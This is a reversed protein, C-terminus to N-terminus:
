GYRQNNDAKVRHEAEWLSLVTLVDEPDLGLDRKLRARSSTLLDDAPLVFPLEPRYSFTITDILTIFPIAV